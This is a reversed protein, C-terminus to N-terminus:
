ATKLGGDHGFLRNIRWNDAVLRQICLPLEETDFKGSSYHRNGTLFYIVFIDFAEQQTM